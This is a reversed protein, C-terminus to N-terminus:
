CSEDIGTINPRTIVLEAAKKAEAPSLKGDDGMIDKLKKYFDLYYYKELMKYTVNKPLRNKTGYKRIKEPTMTGAFGADRDKKATKGSFVLLNIGKEIEKLKAHIMKSIGKVQDPPINSLETFDILDRTLEGHVVDISQVKNQFDDMYKAADFPKEVPRKMFKNNVIDYTGDAFDNADNFQKPVSLVFYNIPHISNPVNKGNISAIKKKLDEVRAGSHMLVNIDLDADDRYKHTLISGILNYKLVEGYAEFKKIQDFIMKRVAPKLVPDSTNAKDFIKVAYVNRPVDIVSESYFQKFTKM